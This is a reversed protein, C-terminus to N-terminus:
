RSSQPRVADLEKRLKDCEKHLNDARKQAANVAKDSAATLAQMQATFSQELDRVRAASREHEEEAAIVDADREALLAHLQEEIASLTETIHLHM